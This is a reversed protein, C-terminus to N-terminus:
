ADYINDISKADTVAEELELFSVTFEKMDDLRLLIGGKREKDDPEACGGDIDIVNEERYSSLPRSDRDKGLYYAPVHGIVFVWPRCAAYDKISKYIDERFPSYWVIYRAIDSDMDKYPIDTVEKVFATHTLFFTTGNVDVKTSVPCSNLWNLLEKRERKKLLRYRHYTVAGGNQFLWNVARRGHIESLNPTVSGNPATVHLMMTEHNGLLFHMNRARMVHRLIKIGDPGRDIADGLMYLKDAGSFGVKELLKKFLGYQGHLDSIVYTAM